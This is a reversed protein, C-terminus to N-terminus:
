ICIVSQWIYSHKKKWLSMKCRWHTLHVLYINFIAKPRSVRICKRGYSDMSHDYVHNLWKSYKNKQCFSFSSTFFHYFFVFNSLSSLNQFTNWINKCIKVYLTCHLLCKYKIRSQQTKKRFFTTTLYGCYLAYIGMFVFVADCLFM